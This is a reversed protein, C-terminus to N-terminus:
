IHILSLKHSSALSQLSMQSPSSSHFSRCDHDPLISTTNLNLLLFFSTNVPFPCQFMLSLSSVSSCLLFISKAPDPLTHRASALAARPRDRICMEIILTEGDQVYTAAKRAIRQKTEYHLSMRYYIDSPDNPVAYGRERKLLGRESLYDLDKRVTVKSTQLLEALTNVETKGNQMVYDLLAAHREKM